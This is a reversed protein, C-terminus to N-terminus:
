CCEDEIRDLLDLGERHGHHEFLARIYNVQSGVVFLEDQGMRTIEDLKREFYASWSSAEPAEICDRICDLIRRAQEDCELGEFTIYRDIKVAAQSM